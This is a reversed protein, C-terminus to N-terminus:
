DRFVFCCAHLCCSWGSKSIAVLTEHDASRMHTFRAGYSIDLDAFGAVDRDGNLLLVSLPELSKGLMDNNLSAAAGLV